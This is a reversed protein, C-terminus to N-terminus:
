KTVAEFAAEAQKEETYCKEVLKQYFPKWNRRWTRENLEPLYARIATYAVSSPVKSYGRGSCRPCIKHVPVGQLATQEEDVVMGRGKCRCRNSLTGKGNCKQCLEDVREKEIWPELVVTGDTRIIGPHKVVEKKSYILGKGQCEQCQCTSAASRSYDEFAMRALIVLCQGLKNGAAKSILKPVTRRAYRTLEEVTSFKDENSVENKAFFATMGFKAQSETMGLAAATDMGKMRGPATSSSSDSFNPSKPHFHKLASELKM